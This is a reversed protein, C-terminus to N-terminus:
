KSGYRPVYRDQNAGTLPTMETIKANFETSAEMKSNIKQLAEQLANVYMGKGFRKIAAELLDKTATVEWEIVQREQSLKDAGEFSKGEKLSRDAEIKIKKLAEKLEARNVKAPISLPRPFCCLWEQGRSEPCLMLSFLTFPCFLTALFGGSVRTAGVMAIAALADNPAEHLKFM